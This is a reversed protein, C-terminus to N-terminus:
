GIYRVGVYPGALAFNSEFGGIGSLFGLSNHLGNFYNVWMFGGDVTLLGAAAHWSYDLGLKAELEPVISDKSGYNLFIGDYFKSTGFLIATAGHAYISFNNLFTHSLEAGIRPGIGDTHSDGHNLFSGSVFNDISGFLRLAQLGGHYRLRNNGLLVTQGFEANIADWQLVHHFTREPTAYFSNTVLKDHYYNLTIDDGTGYHYSAQVKFGWDYGHDWDLYHHFAGEPVAIRYGWNADEVPKLDIEAVEIDWANQPCPITVNDPTCAAGMTGSFIVASYLASFVTIGLRSFSM